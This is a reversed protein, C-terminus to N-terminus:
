SARWLSKLQSRSKNILVAHSESLVFNSSNCSAAAYGAAACCKDDLIHEAVVFMLDCCVASTLQLPGYIGIVKSCRQDVYCTNHQGSTSLPQQAGGTLLIKNDQQDSAATARQLLAAAELFGTQGTQHGGTQHFVSSLTKANRRVKPTLSPRWCCTLSQMVASHQGSQLISPAAACHCM